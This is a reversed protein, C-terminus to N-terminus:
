ESERPQNKLLGGPLPTGLSELYMRNRPEYGRWFRERASRHDRLSARTPPTLRFAAEATVGYAVAWM